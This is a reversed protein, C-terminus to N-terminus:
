ASLRRRTEARGGCGANCAGGRRCSCAESSVPRVRWAEAQRVLKVPASSVSESRIPLPAPTPMTVRAQGRGEASAAEDLKSADPMQRISSKRTSRMGAQLRQEARNVAIQRSREVQNKRVDDLDAERLAEDFQQSSTLGGHRADKVRGITQGFTRQADAAPGESGGRHDSRWRASSATDRDLRCRLM